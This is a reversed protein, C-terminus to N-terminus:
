TVDCFCVFVISVAIIVAYYWNSEPFQMQLAQTQEAALIDM